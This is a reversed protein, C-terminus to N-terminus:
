TKVERYAIIVNYMITIQCYNPHMLHMTSHVGIVTLYSNLVHCQVYMYMFEIPHMPSSNQTHMYMYMYLIATYQQCLATYM